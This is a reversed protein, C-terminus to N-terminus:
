GSERLSEDLTEDLLSEDLTGDRLSEDLTRQMHIDELIKCQMEVEAKEGEELMMQMQLMEPLMESEADSDSDSGSVARAHTDADFYFDALVKARSVAPYVEVDVAPYVEVDDPTLAPDLDCLIGHGPRPRVRGAVAHRWPWCRALPVFVREGCSGRM